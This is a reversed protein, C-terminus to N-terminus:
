SIYGSSHRHSLRYTRLLRPLQHPLPFWISYHPQDLHDLSSSIIGIFIYASPLHGRWSGYKNTQKWQADRRSHRKITARWWGAWNEGIAATAPVM